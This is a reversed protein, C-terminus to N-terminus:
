VYIHGCMLLLLVMSRGWRFDEGKVQAASGRNINLKVSPRYSAGHSLQIFRGLLTGAADWCRGRQRPRTRGVGAEAHGGECM